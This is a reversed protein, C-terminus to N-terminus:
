YFDIPARRASNQEHLALRIAAATNMLPMLSPPTGLLFNGHGGTNSPVKEAAVVYVLIGGQFPRARYQYVPCAIGM